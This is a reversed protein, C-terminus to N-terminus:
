WSGFAQSGSRQLLYIDIFILFIPIPKQTHLDPVYLSCILVRYGTSACVSVNKLYENAERHQADILWLDRECM